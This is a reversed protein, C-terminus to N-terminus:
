RQATGLVHRDPGDLYTCKGREQIWISSAMRGIFTVKYMPM